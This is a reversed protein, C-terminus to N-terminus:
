LGIIGSVSVLHLAFVSAGSEFWCSWAEDTRDSAATGILTQPATVTFTSGEGWYRTGFAEAVVGTLELLCDDSHHWSLTEETPGHINEAIARKLASPLDLILRFSCGSSVYVSFLEASGTEGPPAVPVADIFAMKALTETVAYEGAERLAVARDVDVIRLIREVREPSIPKQLYMDAGFAQHSIQIPGTPTSALAMLSTASLRQDSKVARIFDLADTTPMSMDTVILDVSERALVRLAQAGDQAEIISTSGPAALEFCRRTMVRSASSDGVILVRLPHQM